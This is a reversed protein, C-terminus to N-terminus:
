DEQEPPPETKSRTWIKPPRNRLLSHDDLEARRQYFRRIFGRIEAFFEETEDRVPEGEIDVRLYELAVSADFLLDEGIQVRETSALVRIKQDPEQRLKHGFFEIEEGMMFPYFYRKAIEGMSVNKIRIVPQNPNAVEVHFFM